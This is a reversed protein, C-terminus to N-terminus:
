GDVAETLQAERAREGAIGDFTAGTSELTAKLGAVKALRRVIVDCYHPDIEIAAGRRGTREAAVLTTGDIRLM